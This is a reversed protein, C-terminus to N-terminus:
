GNEPPQILCMGLLRRDAFEERALAADLIADVNDVDNEIEKSFLQATEAPSGPLMSVLLTAIVIFKVRCILDYDSIAQLWYRRTLYRALAAHVPALRPPRAQGLLNEWRPTLIELERFFAAFASIDGPLPPVEEPEPIRATDTEGDLLAQAEYGFLLLRALAKGPLDGSLIELATQRTAKLVAMDRPDYEAPDGGDVELTVWRRAGPALILRAAEPCSLELELEAFDGYDHRLRPFERCVRCLAEEGLEAQIRCLGDARWMPCRGQEIAMVTEGDGDKLVQRLRDGLPGPLARYLRASAEDVQVDWERCCSDPCAGALCRFSDFYDPKTVKM